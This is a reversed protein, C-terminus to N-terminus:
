VANIVEGITEELTIITGLRSQVSFKVKMEQGDRVAKIYNITFILREKQNDLADAILSEIVEAPAGGSNSRIAEELDFGYQYHWVESGKQCNLLNNIIQYFAYDNEVVVYDGDEGLIPDGTRLDLLIGPM